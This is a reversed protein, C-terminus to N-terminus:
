LMGFVYDNMISLLKFLGRKPVSYENSEPFFVPHTFDPVSVILDWVKGWGSFPFLYGGISTLITM